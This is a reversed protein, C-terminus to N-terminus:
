TRSQPSPLPMWSVGHTGEPLMSVEIEPRFSLILLILQIETGKHQM